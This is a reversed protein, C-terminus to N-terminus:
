FFTRVGSKNAAHILGVDRTALPLGRRLALELYAADYVTLAHKGALETTRGLAHRHGDEDVVPNLRALMRCARSHQDPGIRKRRSLLLLANAAEYLWLAPVYFPTGAAIADLLSDTQGSSQSLVAWSVAVSADAVFGDKM